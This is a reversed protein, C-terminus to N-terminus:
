AWKESSVASLNGFHNYGIAFVGAIFFYEGKEVDEGTDATLQINSRLLESHLSM